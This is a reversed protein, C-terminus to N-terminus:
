PQFDFLKKELFVPLIILLEMPIVYLESSLLMMKIKYKQVTYLSPENFHLQEKKESDPTSFTM